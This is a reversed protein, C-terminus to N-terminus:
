QCFRFLGKILHMNGIYVMLQQFIGTILVNNRVVWFQCKSDHQCVCNRNLYLTFVCDFTGTWIEIVNWDRGHGCSTLTLPATPWKIGTSGMLQSKRDRHLGFVGCYLDSDNDCLSYTYVNWWNDQITFCCKRMLLDEIHQHHINDVCTATQRVVGSKLDFNVLRHRQRLVYEYM